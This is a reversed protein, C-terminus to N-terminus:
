RAHGSSAASLLTSTACVSMVTMEGPVLLQCSFRPPTATVPVRSLLPHLRGSWQKVRRGSLATHSPTVHSGSPTQGGSVSTFLRRCREARGAGPYVCRQWVGRTNIACSGYPQALWFSQSFSQGRARTHTHTHTHTRAHTRAHTHTHTCVHVHTRAHTYMRAHTHTRALARATARMSFHQLFPRSHFVFALRRGM